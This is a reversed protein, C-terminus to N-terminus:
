CDLYGMSGLMTMKAVELLSIMESSKLGAQSWKVSYEGENDNLSVIIVKEYGKLRGDEIESKHDVIADIASRHAGNGSFESLKAVEKM